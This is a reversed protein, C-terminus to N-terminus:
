FEILDIQGNNGLLDFEALVSEVVGVSAHDEAVIQSFLLTESRNVGFQLIDIVHFEQVVEDNGVVVLVYIEVVNGSIVGILQDTGM